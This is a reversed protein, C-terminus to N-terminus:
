FKGRKGAQLFKKYCPRHFIRGQQKSYHEDLYIWEKCFFCEDRIQSEQSVPTATELVVEKEVPEQKEEGRFFKKIRSFFGLKVEKAEETKIDESQQEQEIPQTQEEM